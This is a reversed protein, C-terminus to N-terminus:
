FAALWGRRMEELRKPGLAKQLNPDRCLEHVAATFKAKEDADSAVQVLAGFAKAMAINTVMDGLVKALSPKVVTELGERSNM